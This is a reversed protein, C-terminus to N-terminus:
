TRQLEFIKHNKVSELGCLYVKPNRPLKVIETNKRNITGRSSFSGSVCAVLYNCSAPSSMPWGAFSTITSHPEDETVGKVTERCSITELSDM